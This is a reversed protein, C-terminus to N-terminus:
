RWSVAGAVVARVAGAQDRVLLAGDDDIGCGVGEVSPAEIERGRLFDRRGLEDRFPGLGERGFLEAAGRLGHLLEAAVRERDGRGGALVISTAPVAFGEPFSRALVNLGVGAIAVPPEAGRTTSEVLIGAIKRGDVYVDNPWKIAAREAGLAADVVRAVAIGVALPLAALRPPPVGLRLVMSLYVNEGPPSHWLHDARGRGATQRDAVFAAGHPAGAAAARKADDNTSATEAAVGVPAATGLEALRAVIRAADM